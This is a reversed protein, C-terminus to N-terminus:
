YSGGGVGLEASYDRVKPKKSYFKVYNIGWKKQHMSRSDDTVLRYKRSWQRHVYFFAQKSDFLFFRLSVRLNNAGRWGPWYVCNGKKEEAKCYLHATVPFLATFYVNYKFTCYVTSGRNVFAEWWSCIPKRVFKGFFFTDPSSLHRSYHVRLGAVVTPSLSPTDASCRWNSHLKRENCM